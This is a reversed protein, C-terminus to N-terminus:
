RARRQYLDGLALFGLLILYFSWIMFGTFHKRTYGEIVISNGKVRVHKMLQRGTYIYLIIGVISLPTALYTGIKDLFHILPQSEPPPEVIYGDSVHIYPGYGPRWVFLFGIALMSLLLVAYYLGKKM